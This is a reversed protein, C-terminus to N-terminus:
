KPSSLKVSWAPRSQTLAIEWRWLQDGSDAAAGLPLPQVEDVGLAATLAERDFGCIRASCCVAVRPSVLVAHDGESGDSARAINASVLKGAAWEVDVSWGGRARLGRASGSRWVPPLAPLLHIPCRTSHSQLLMELVAATYGGNADLQFIGEGAGSSRGVCTMCGQKSGKMKPHLGLLNPAVFEHLTFRLAAHALAGDHLRAWLTAAWAASWGTHGGGHRLRRLLSRRAAAALSPTTTPDIGDGPHLPYLHSFHRHGPDASTRASNTDYDWWEALEGNEDLRPVGANPLRERLAELRAVLTSDAESLRGLAKLAKAGEAVARFTQAVIGLDLAVDYSLYRTTMPSSASGDSSIVYANEPSHSPGWRVNKEVHGDYADDLIGVGDGHKGKLLRDAFFLASGRLLPWAVDLHAERRSFEFRQWLQLAAWGGCTICLSWMPPALPAASAWADTFGHAMWAGKSRSGYVHKAVQEGSAALRTLFPGLPEVSESLAGPGSQWYIQQLNINLHFDSGWPPRVGDAWLGQLNAPLSSMSSSSSLLLYRGFQVQQEILGPDELLATRAFKLRRDCSLDNRRAHSGKDQIRLSFGRFRLAHRETHRILLESWSHRAAATLTRTCEAELDAADGGASSGRARKTFDTSATLLLTADTVGELHLLGDQVSVSATPPQFSTLRLITAFATGDGSAAAHMLLSLAGFAVGSKRPARGKEDSRELRLRVDFTCSGNLRLALVDDVASVLAHREFACTSLSGGAVFRVSAIATELDLERRYSVLKPPSALHASPDMAASSQTSSPALEIGLSGLFEYSRVQGSSLGAAAREAGRIDGAAMLSEMSRAATVRGAMDQAVANVTVRPGAVISEEDLVVRDRWPGGYVLAGLRGNGLPLADLLGTAASDFWLPEVRHEAADGEESRAGPTGSPEGALSVAPAQLLLQSPDGAPISNLPSATRQLFRRPTGGNSTRSTRSANCHGGGPYGGGGRVADACPFSTGKVFGRCTGLSRCWM